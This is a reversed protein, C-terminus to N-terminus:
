SLGIVFAGVGVSFFGFVIRCGLSRWLFKSQVVIISRSLNTIVRKQKEEKPEQFISPDCGSRM